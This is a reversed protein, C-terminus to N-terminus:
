NIHTLMMVYQSSIKHTDPRWTQGMWHTKPSKQYVSWCFLWSGFGREVWSETCRLQPTLWWEHHIQLINEDAKVYFFEAWLFCEIPDHRSNWFMYLQLFCRPEIIQLLEVTSTPRQMGTQIKRDLTRSFQHLEHGLGDMNSGYQALHQLEKPPGKYMESQTFPQDLHSCMLNKKCLTYSRHEPVAEITGAPVLNLFHASCHIHCAKRGRQNCGSSWCAQRETTKGALEMVDNRCM